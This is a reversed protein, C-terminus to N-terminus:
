FTVQLSSLFQISRQNPHVLSVHAGLQGFGRAESLYTGVQGRGLRGATELCLRMM